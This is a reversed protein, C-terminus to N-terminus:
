LWISCRPLLGLQGHELILVMKDGQGLHLAMMVGASHVTVRSGSLSRWIITTMTAVIVTELIHEGFMLHFLEFMFPVIQGLQCSHFAHRPFQIRAGLDGSDLGEARSELVSFARADTLPLCWLAAMRPLRPPVNPFTSVAALSFWSVTSIDITMM